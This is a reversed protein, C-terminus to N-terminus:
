AVSSRGSGIPAQLWHIMARWASIRHVRRYAVSESPLEAADPMPSLMRGVGDYREHPETESALGQTEFSRAAPVAHHQSTTMLRLSKQAYRAIVILIGFQAILSGLEFWYGQVWDFVDGM